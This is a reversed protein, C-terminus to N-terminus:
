PGERLLPELLPALRARALNTLKRWSASKAARLVLFMRREEGAAIPRVILRHDSADLLTM